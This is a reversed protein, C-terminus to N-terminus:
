GESTGRQELPNVALVPQMLDGAVSLESVLHLPSAVSM